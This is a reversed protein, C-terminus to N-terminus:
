RYYDEDYEYERDDGYERQDELINEYVNECNYLYETVIDQLWKPFDLYNKPNNNHEESIDEVINTVTIEYEMPEAPYCNEPPGYTKAPCGKYTIKYDYFVVYDRDLINVGAQSSGFSM